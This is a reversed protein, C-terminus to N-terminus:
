ARSRKSIPGTVQDHFVEYRTANNITLREGRAKALRVPHDLWALHTGDFGLRERLEEFRLELRRNDDVPLRPLGALTPSEIADDPPNEEPSPPVSADDANDM